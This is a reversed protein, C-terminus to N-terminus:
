AEKYIWVNMKAYADKCKVANKKKFDYFVIPINDERSPPM